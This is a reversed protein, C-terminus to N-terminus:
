CNPRTNSMKWINMICTYVLKPFHLQLLQIFNEKDTLRKFLKSNFNIRVSCFFRFERIPCSKLPFCSLILEKTITNSNHYM